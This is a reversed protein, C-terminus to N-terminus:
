VELRFIVRDTKFNFQKAYRSWGPRCYAVVSDCGNRKAHAHFAEIFSAAHEKVNRGCAVTVVLERRDFRDVVETVGWLDDPAYWLQAQGSLLKDVVSGVSEFGGMFPIARELEILFRGLVGAVESRPFLYIM